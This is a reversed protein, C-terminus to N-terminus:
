MMRSVHHVESDSSDTVVELPPQAADGNASGFHCAEGRFPLLRFEPVQVPPDESDGPPRGSEFGFRALVCAEARRIPQSCSLEGTSNAGV